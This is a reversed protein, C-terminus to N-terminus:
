DPCPGSETDEIERGTVIKYYRLKACREIEVMRKLAEAIDTRHATFVGHSIVVASGTARIAEPVTNVIAYRGTGIEGPVVKAGCLSREEPCRLHCKGELECPTECYMSMVVSFRPHGHLIVRNPSCQYVRLHTPMESSAVLAVTSSGELPVEELADELEDLSAATQSILMTDGVRLSLNGFFSDVLGSKVIEK